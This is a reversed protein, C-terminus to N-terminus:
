IDTECPLYGNQASQYGARERQNWICILRGLRTRRCRSGRNIPWYSESSGATCGPETQHCWIVVRCKWDFGATDAPPLPCDSALSFLATWSTEVSCADTEWVYLLRWCYGTSCRRDLLPVPSLNHYQRLGQSPPLAHTTRGEKVEM